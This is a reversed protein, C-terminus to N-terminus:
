FFIYICAFHVCINMQCVTKLIVLFNQTRFVEMWGDMMGHARVRQHGIGMQSEMEVTCPGTGEQQSLAHGDPVM